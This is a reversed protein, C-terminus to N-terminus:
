VGESSTVERGVPIWNFPICRRRGDIVHRRGDDCTTPDVGAKVGGVLFAEEYVALELAIFFHVGGRFM